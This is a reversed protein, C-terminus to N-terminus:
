QICHFRQHHVRGFVAYCVERCLVRRVTGTCNRCYMKFRGFLFVDRYLVGSVTGTYNRYHM